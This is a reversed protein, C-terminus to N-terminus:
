STCHRIVAIILEQDTLDMERPKPFIIVLKLDQDPNFTPFYRFLATNIYYKLRMQLSDSTNKHSCSVINEHLYLSGPTIFCLCLDLKDLIVYSAGGIDNPIQKEHTCFFTWPLSLNALLLESGSDLVTPEPILSPFYTFNCLQKFMDIDLENYITNECTHKTSHQTLFVQVCFYTNGFHFCDHIHAIDLPVYTSYRMALLQHKPHLM